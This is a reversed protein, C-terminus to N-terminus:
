VFDGEDLIRVHRAADGDGKAARLALYLTAVDGHVHLRGRIRVGLWALNQGGYDHPPERRARLGQEGAAPVYRQPPELLRHPGM